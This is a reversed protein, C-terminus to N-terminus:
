CCTNSCGPEGVTGFEDLIWQLFRHHHKLEPLTNPVGPAKTLTDDNRNVDLRGYLRFHTDGDYASAASLDSINALVIEAKDKLKLIKFEAGSDPRAVITINGVHDRMELKTMGAGQTEGAFLFTRLKGQRIPMQVITQAWEPVIQLRRERALEPLKEFRADLRPGLPWCGGGTREMGSITIHSPERVRFETVRIKKWDENSEPPWWMSSDDIDEDEIFFSANHPAIKGDPNRGDPLLALKGDQKRDYFYVLGVFHVIYAM